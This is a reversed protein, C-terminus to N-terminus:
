DEQHAFVCIKTRSASDQDQLQIKTRSACIKTRSAHLKTRSGYIKSRSSGFKSVQLVVRLKHLVTGIDQHEIRPEKM